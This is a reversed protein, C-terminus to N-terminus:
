KPKEDQSVVSAALSRIDKVLAKPDEELLKRLRAETLKMYSAGKSSLEPSSQKRAEAPDIVATISGDDNYITCRVVLEGITLQGTNIEETHVRIVPTAAVFASHMKDPDNSPDYKAPQAEAKVLAAIEADVEPDITSGFSKKMGDWWDSLKSM